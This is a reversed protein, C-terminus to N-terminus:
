ARHFRWAGCAGPQVSVFPSDARPRLRRLSFTLPEFGRLEVWWFWRRSPMTSMVMSCAVPTM